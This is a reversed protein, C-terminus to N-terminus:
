LCPKLATRSKGGASVRESGGVKLFSLHIACYHHGQGKGAQEQQSAASRVPFVSFPVAPIVIMIMTTSIVPNVIISPIVMSIITTVIVAVVTTIAITIVPVVSVDLTKQFLPLPQDAERSAVGRITGTM